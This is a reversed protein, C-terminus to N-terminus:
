KFHNLNRIFCEENSDFGQLWSRWIEFAIQQDQSREGHRGFLANIYETADCDEELYVTDGNRYSCGSIAGVIGLIVLDNYNVELWGHSPDSHFNHPTQRLVAKREENRQILAVMDLQGSGRMQESTFLTM